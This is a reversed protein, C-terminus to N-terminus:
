TFRQVVMPYPYTTSESATWDFRVFDFTKDDTEDESQMFFGKQVAYKFHFDQQEDGGVAVGGEHGSASM